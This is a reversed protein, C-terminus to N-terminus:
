DCSFVDPDTTLNKFENSADLVVRKVNENENVCIRYAPNQRGDPLTFKTPKIGDWAIFPPRFGFKWLLIKGLQSRVDPIIYRNSFNNDHIHIEGPYPDYKQDQEYQRNISRGPSIDGSSENKLEKTIIDIFGYSFIGIGLTRNDMIQNQYINVNRSALILLGTGPPVINTINGISAFNGLNNKNIENSYVEINEGKMTLGPLYSLFIGGSNEYVKNDYIKVRSSNESEIGVVNWYAKNKRIVVEHSQGVYIGADRAGLVECDEVLVNQCLQPYIGNTGNEDSVLGTWASKVNRIKLGDTNTVQINIETADEVSFEELIINKCNVISIGVTGEKQSKFSLVSKLVGKGRITVNEKGEFILSETLLFNGEEIEILSNDDALAFRSLLELDVNSFERPPDYSRVQDCSYLILSLYFLLLQKKM